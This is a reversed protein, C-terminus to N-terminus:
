EIEVLVQVMRCSPNISELNSSHLPQKKWRSIKPSFICFFCKYTILGNIGAYSFRNRLTVACGLDDLM